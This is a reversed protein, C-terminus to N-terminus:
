AGNQQGEAAKIEIKRRKAEEPKPMKITLVGNCYQADVNEERVSCPLTVTRSFNGMSREVRHWTRGKEEKEEERRGSITLLNGEIQVDIDEPKIGPADMRIEIATDTESMDVSPIVAGQFSAGDGFFRGLMDDMEDQLRGIIDRSPRGMERPQRRVLFGAM